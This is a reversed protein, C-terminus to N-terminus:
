NEQNLKEYMRLAEQAAASDGAMKLARALQFWAAADGADLKVAQRLQAIADQLRNQELLCRGYGARAPASNPDAAVSKELYSAAEDLKGQDLLLVGLRYMALADGPNVGLEQQYAELAKEPKGSNRYIEALRLHIGRAKPNRELAKHYNAIAPGHLGQVEYNEGLLQYIRYNEPHKQKLQDYAELSLKLHARGLLYLTEPDGPQKQRLLELQKLADQWREAIYYARALHFRANLDQPKDRVARELRRIAEATQYMELLSLGLFLHAMFLNDDGALAKRFDQAAKDYEGALYRMLGLNARLPHLAPDLKLIQEYHSAAEQYDKRAEAERAKQYLSQAAASQRPQAKTTPAVCLLAIILGTLLTQFPHLSQQPM